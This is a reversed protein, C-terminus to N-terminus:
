GRGALGLWALPVAVAAVAGARCVLGVCGYLVPTGQPMGRADRVWAAHRRVDGGTRWLVVAAVGSLVTALAARAM